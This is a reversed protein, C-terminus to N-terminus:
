VLEMFYVLCVFFLFFPYLILMNEIWFLCPIIVFLLASELPHSGIIDGRKTDLGFRLSDHVEGIQHEITKPAEMREQKRRNRKEEETQTRDKHVLSQNTLPTPSVKHTSHQFSSTSETTKYNGEPSQSIQYTMSYIIFKTGRTKLILEITKKTKFYLQDIRKSTNIM